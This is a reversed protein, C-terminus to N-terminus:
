ACCSALTAYRVTSTVSDGLRRMEREVDRKDVTVLFREKDGDAGPGYLVGPLRGETPQRQQQHPCPLITQTLLLCVSTPLHSLSLCFLMTM